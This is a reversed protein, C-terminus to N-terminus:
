DDGDVDEFTDSPIYFMWEQQAKISIDQIPNVLIPPNNLVTVIFCSEASDKYLDEAVICIVFQGRETANGEFIAQEALFALWSPFEEAGNFTASYTM